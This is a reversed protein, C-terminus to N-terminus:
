PYTQTANSSGSFGDRFEFFRGRWAKALDILEVIDPFAGAQPQHFVAEVHGCIVNTCRAVNLSGSRGVGASKLTLGVASPKTM